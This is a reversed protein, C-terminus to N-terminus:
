IEMTDPEIITELPAPAPPIGSGKIPHASELVMASTSKQVSVALSAMLTAKESATAWKDADTKAAELKAAFGDNILKACDDGMAGFHDLTIAMFDMNRDACPPAKHRAKAKAMSAHIALYQTASKPLHSHLLGNGITADMALRRGGGATWNTAIADIRQRLKQGHPSRGVYIEAVDVRYGIARLLKAYGAM